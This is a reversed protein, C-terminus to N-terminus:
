TSHTQLGPSIRGYPASTTRSATGAAAALRALRGEVSRQLAAIARMVPRIDSIGAAANPASGSAAAPAPAATAAAAVAERAPGAASAPQPITRNVLPVELDDPGCRVVAVIEARDAAVVPEDLTVNFGHRGDGAGAKELDRRFINASVTALTRERLRVQVELV